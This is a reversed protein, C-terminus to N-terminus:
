RDATGLFDPRHDPARPPDGRLPRGHRAQICYRFCRAAGLLADLKEILTVLPHVCRVARPRNDDSFPDALAQLGKRRNRHRQPEPPTRSKAGLGGPVARSNVLSHSFKSVSSRARRSYCYSLLRRPQRLGCRFVGYSERTVPDFLRPTRPEFAGHTFLRDQRRCAAIEPFVTTGTFLHLYEIGRWEGGHGETGWEFYCCFLLHSPLFHCTAPRGGVASSPLCEEPHVDGDYM